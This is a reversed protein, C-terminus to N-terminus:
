GITIGIAKLKDLTDEKIEVKAELMADVRHQLEALQAPTLQKKRLAKSIYARYTSVDFAPTVPQQAKSANFREIEDDILAWIREIEGDLRLVESRYEAREENHEEGEPVQRMKLHNQQMERYLEQRQLWLKQTLPTPMDEYRTNRHTRIDEQTITIETESDDMDPEEIQSVSGTENSKPEIEHSKLGTDNSKPVEVHAIPKRFYGKERLTRLVSPMRLLKHIRAHLEPRNHTKKLHRIVGPADNCLVLFAVGEDFTYGDMSNLQDINM